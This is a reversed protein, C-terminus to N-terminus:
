SDPFVTDEADGSITGMAVLTEYQVRGSRGGTGTTVKVWGAHTANKGYGAVGMETTDVGFVTNADTGTADAYAIYVPKESLVYSSGANVTGIAGGLLGSNVQAVTNNSISTIIYDKSGATIYNGVAAETTFSTTTGSVLGNAYIRVTGSATKSDKNGWLAM